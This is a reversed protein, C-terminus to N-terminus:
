CNIIVLVEETGADGPQGIGLWDRGIVEDFKQILSPNLPSKNQRNCVLVAVGIARL